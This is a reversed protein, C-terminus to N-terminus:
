VAMMKLARLLMRELLIYLYKCPLKESASVRLLDLHLIRAKSPHRQLDKLVVQEEKGDVNVTLIHSYFAENELHKAIDKHTITLQVPAAGSGYLIAPIQEAHRMRRAAGKGTETRLQANILYDNSTSM